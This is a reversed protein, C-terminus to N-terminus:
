STTTSTSAAFLGLAIAVVVFLITIIMLATAIIGCIRGAQAQSRGGLRGQASDIERVVRNGMIWAVPGLVQCLVLSLIGLIMVLTSQQHDPVAYGAYQPAQGYAGPQPAGYQPQGYEPQGYPPQAPQGYPAQGYDPQAPQGYEPQGSGQTPDPQQPDNSPVNPDSM